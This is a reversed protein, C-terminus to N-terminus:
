YALELRLFVGHNYMELNSSKLQGLDFWHEYQYAARFRLNEWTTPTYSLGVQVQLTQVAQSGKQQVSESLMGTYTHFNQEVQGILISSDFNSYIALGPLADFRREVDLAGTLGGGFFNSSESQSLAGTVNQTDYFSLAMRGGVRSTIYWNGWPRFPSTEYIFDVVNLNFRSRIDTGGASDTGESGLYRYGVLFAGQSDPLRYGLEVRPAVTYDLSSSLMGSYDFLAPVGDNVRIKNKVIPKLVTADWNMLWATPASGPGFISWGQPGPDYGDMPLPQPPFTTGPPGLELPPPPLIPGNVPPPLIVGPPQALASTTLLLVVVFSCGIRTGM